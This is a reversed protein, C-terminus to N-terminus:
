TKDVLLASVPLYEEGFRLSRYLCAMPWCSKVAGDIIQMPEIRHLEGRVSLTPVTELPSKSCFFPRLGLFEARQKLEDCGCFALAEIEGDQDFLMVAM